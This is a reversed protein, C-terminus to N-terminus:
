IRARDKTLVIEKRNDNADRYVVRVEVTKLLSNHETVAVSYMLGAYELVSEADSEAETEAEEIYGNESIDVVAGFPCESFEELKSQALSLAVGFRLTDVSIRSTVTLCHVLPVLVISLITFAVLVELLAFGKQGLVIRKLKGAGGKLSRTM